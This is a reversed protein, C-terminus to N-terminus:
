RCTRHHVGLETSGSTSYLFRREMLRRQRFISKICRPCGPKQRVGGVVSYREITFISTPRSHIHFNYSACHSIQDDVIRQFVFIM